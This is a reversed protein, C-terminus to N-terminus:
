SRANKAALWLRMGEAYVEDPIKFNSNIIKVNTSYSASSGNPDGLKKKDGQEVEWLETDIKYTFERRKDGDKAAVVLLKDPNEKGAGRNNALIQGISERNAIEKLFEDYTADSNGNQRPTAQRQQVPVAQNANPTRKEAAFLDPSVEGLSTNNPALVADTSSGSFYNAAYNVGEILGKGLYSTATSTVDGALGVAASMATKTAGTFQLSRASNSPPASVTSNSPRLPASSTHQSMPTAVTNIRLNMMLEKHVDDLAKKRALTQEERVEEEYARMIIKYDMITKYEEQGAADVNPKTSADSEKMWEVTENKISTLMGSTLLSEKM